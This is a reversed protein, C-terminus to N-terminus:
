AAPWRVPFVIDSRVVPLSWTPATSPAGPRRFWRTQVYMCSLRVPPMQSSSPLLWGRPNSSRARPALPRSSLTPTPPHLMRQRRAQSPSHSFQVFLHFCALFPVPHLLFPPLPGLPLPTAQQPYALPPTTALAQHPAFSTELLVRAPWQIGHRLHGGTKGVIGHRPTPLVPWSVRFTYMLLPATQPM